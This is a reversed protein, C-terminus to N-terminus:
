YGSYAPINFKGLLYGLAPNLTWNPVSTDEKRQSQSATRLPRVLASWWDSPAPESTAGTPTTKLKPAKSSHM